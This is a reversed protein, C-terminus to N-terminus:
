SVTQSGHIEPRCRRLRWAPPNQNGLYSGDRSGEVGVKPVARGQARDHESDAVNRPMGHAGPMRQGRRRAAKGQKDALDIDGDIRSRIDSDFSLGRLEELWVDCLETDPAPPVTNVADLFSTLRLQTV